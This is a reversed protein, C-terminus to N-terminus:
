LLISAEARYGAHDTSCYDCTHDSFAHDDIDNDGSLVWTGPEDDAHALVRERHEDDAHEGNAILAACDMCVLLGDAIVQVM